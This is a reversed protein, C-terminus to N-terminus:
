YDQLLLKFQKIDEDDFLSYLKQGNKICLDYIKKDKISNNDYGLMDCWSDFDMELAESDMILSFLVDSLKPPETLGLGMYYDITFQKGKNKLTVKYQNANWEDKTTYGIFKTKIIDAKNLAYLSQYM